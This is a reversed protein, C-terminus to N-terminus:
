PADGDYIPPESTPLGPTPVPQGTDSCYTDRGLFCLVPLLEPAFIALGAAAIAGTLLYGITRKSTKREEEILKDLADEQAQMYDIFKANGVGLCDSQGDLLRKFVHRRMAEDTLGTLDSPDLLFLAGDLVSILDDISITETQAKGEKDKCTVFFATKHGDKKAQDLQGRRYVNMGARNLLEREDPKLSAIAMRVQEEDSPDPTSVCAFQVVMVVACLAALMKKQM